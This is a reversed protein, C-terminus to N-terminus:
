KDWVDPFDNEQVGFGSKGQVSRGVASSSEICLDSNLDRKAKEELWALPYGYDNEEKSGPVFVTVIFLGLQLLRAVIALLGYISVVNVHLSILAVILVGMGFPAVAWWGSLNVDHLRRVTVSYSPLVLALIIITKVIYPSLILSLGMKIYVWIGLVAVLFAILHFFIFERRNARGNFDCYHSFIVDFFYKKM